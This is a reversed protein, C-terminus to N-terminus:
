NETHKENNNIQPRYVNLTGEILVQESDLDTLSCDFVGFGTADEISLQIRIQLRHGLTVLPAHFKLKRSGIWYGLSIPLGAKMCKCGAWAAIGQAMIEAAMYTPLAGNKVLLCAETPTAEAILFNDGFDTIKELMVMKGSHPILSAVHTIPCTLDIM